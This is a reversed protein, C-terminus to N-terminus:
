WSKTLTAVFRADEPGNDVGYEQLYRLNV